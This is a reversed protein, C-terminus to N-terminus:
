RRAAEALAEFAYGGAPTAEIVPAGVQARQESAVAGFPIYAATSSFDSPVLDRM